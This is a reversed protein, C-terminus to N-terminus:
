ANEMPTAKYSVVDVYLFLVAVCLYFEFRRKMGMAKPLNVEEEPNLDLMEEDPKNEPEEVEPEKVEVGNEKATKM